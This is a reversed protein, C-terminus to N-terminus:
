RSPSGGLAGFPNSFTGIGALTFSINFRRDQPVPFRRDFRPFNFTQYELAIGCCQANYYTVLRQQLLTSRGLDYNFSYTGGVRNNWGRLTTSGNVFNDNDLFGLLRRQSWGGSAGLWDGRAVRGNASISQLGDIEPDYELRLGGALQDTPSVAVGIQVTSFNSPKRGRFSSGYAFDVQSALPDTYYSQNITVSLFERARGSVPGGKLKALLRNTLGYTFRTSGGVAYDTGELQVIRTRNAISTVRQLGVSPEILHKFKEAYGNDPTNWVRTLVPGVIESRLDFYRRYLPESVQRGGVYSETYYTHRWAMSSNVTLFPWRTFPVRLLPTSDIRALGQDNVTDGDVRDQRLLNAYEGGISVYFPLGALRRPARSFSIRPSSGYLTSQSAGFFTERWDFTGNFNYGHWAGALNGGYARTRLSADYINQHYTQRVTMDSFYDVRGRARLRRPLLQAVSAHLEYSRRGPVTTLRTQGGESSAYTSEHENLLYTRADGESGPALVYRYEAGVGQGTKSFWDHFVTADQSRNIAWFFANSIAQGRITSTGYTPILFGTARDDKRIPYYFMPLYLVPVGKVKFLSNKLLAYDDLNITVTTSTLQWRPTPQVCTTFGGRTVRYRKPSLKEIKEGYFYADPEQTGFMSRETGQALTASGAAQYFTGTRTKTDFEARDAAIRNSGSTFVVNGTAILRDTDTFLEVEDAYFTDDGTTIEAAGALRWRNPGLRETRWAKTLDVGPVQARATAASVFLACGCLVLALPRHM